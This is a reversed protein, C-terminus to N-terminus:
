HENLYPHSVLGSCSDTQAGTVSRLVNNQDRMRLVGLFAFILAEKYDLIEENPIVVEVSSLQSLREMLFGNRTGGGTVLVRGAGVRSNIVVSIQEAVHETVTRLKDETSCNANEIVPNFVEELWERALSPRTDLKYIPLANLQKLLEPQLHGSQAIEGNYDFPKDLCNALPNLSINVPCIDFALREEDEKFSINSFGGLNLCAEYESFLYEDGVPVLPAGQGGLSVDLSRFDSVSTIGTTNSIIQGNGIQLTYKKAPEHFITHGHSCVIDPKQLSFKDIFANVSEGIFKGFTDNLAELKDASYTHANGLDFRWQQDYSICDSSIIEFQWKGDFIFEAYCLDLGDLSTGSMIGIATTTEKKLGDTVNSFKLIFLTCKDNV